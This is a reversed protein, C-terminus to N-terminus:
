FGYIERLMSKRCTKISKVAIGFHESLEEYDLDSEISAESSALYLSTATLTQTSRNMSDAFSTYLEYGRSIEAESTGLGSCASRYEGETLM